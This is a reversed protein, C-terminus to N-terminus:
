SPLVMLPQGIVVSTRPCTTASAPSNTPAAPLPRNKFHSMEGAVAGSPRRVMGNSGAVPDTSGPFCVSEKCQLGGSRRLRAVRSSAGSVFHHLQDYEGPALREVLHVSNRDDPGILGAVYLPRM